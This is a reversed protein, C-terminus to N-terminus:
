GWIGQLVSLSKLTGFDPIHLSLYQGYASLLQQRTLRNLKITGLVGYDVTQHIQHTAEALENSLYYIHPPTESVYLGEALDLYPTHECYKGQIQFGLETGLQLVFLLPLNATVAETATDLTKLTTEMLEYLAPNAEPQKLAHFLLEVLYTAVGNKVLNFLVQQYPYSWYYEKIFQLQKQENHYVTMELMAGPQFYAVKSSQAKKTVSRAGKVLYSQLGFLETFVTTIIGNEGYKVTKLVIGKTNHLM